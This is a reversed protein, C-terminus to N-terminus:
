PQQGWFIIWTDSFDLGKTKLTTKLKQKLKDRITGQSLFTRGPRGSPNKLFLVILLLSDPSRKMQDHSQWRQFLYGKTTTLNYKTNM